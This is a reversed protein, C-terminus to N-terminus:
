IVIVSYPMSCDRSKHNSDFCAEFGTQKTNIQSLYSQQFTIYTIKSM